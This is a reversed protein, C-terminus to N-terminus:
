ARSTFDAAPAPPPHGAAWGEWKGPIRRARKRPRGLVVRSCLMAATAILRMRSSAQHVQCGSSRVRVLWKWRSWYSSVAHFWILWCPRVLALADEGAGHCADRVRLVQVFPALAAVGADDFAGAVGVVGKLFGARVAGAM